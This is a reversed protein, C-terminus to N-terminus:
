GKLLRTVDVVDLDVDFVVLRALVLV